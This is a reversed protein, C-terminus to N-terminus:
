ERKISHPFDSNGDKIAAPFERKQTDSFDSKEEKLSEPFDGIM